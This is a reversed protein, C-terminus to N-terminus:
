LTKEMRQHPIGVEIFEDGTGVYRLKSYFGIATGRANLFIRKIRGENALIEEVGAMIARGFGQGQLGELVAM